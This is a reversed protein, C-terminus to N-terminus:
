SIPQWVSVAWGGRLRAVEALTVHPGPPLGAYPGGGTTQEETVIVWRGRDAGQGPAIAVVSGHNAVHHAALAAAGGAAAATQQAALRAPGVAIAALEHERAPLCSASWNVYALAYRRLALTPSTALASPTVALQAAAAAPAITGGREPPPDGTPAPAATVLARKAPTASFSRGLPATVVARPHSAGCGALVLVALLAPSLCAAWSM